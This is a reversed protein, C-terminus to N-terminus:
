PKPLRHCIRKPLVVSLVIILAIYYLTLLTIGEIDCIPATTTRCLQGTALKMLVIRTLDRPPNASNEEFRTGIVSTAPM